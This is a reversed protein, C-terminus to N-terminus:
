FTVLKETLDINKNIDFKEKRDLVGYSIWYTFM